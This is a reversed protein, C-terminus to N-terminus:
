AQKAPSEPAARRPGAQAAALNRYGPHVGETLQQQSAVRALLDRLQAREDPSLAALMADDHERAVRGIDGLLERGADTLHIAHLRRDTPNRRRELAGRGELVDVLTVVRTPPTDLHRALDQQSRGPRAAVARMLGAQPPTLDLEAVREAFRRAGHAGLQALLFSSNPPPPATGDAPNSTSAAAM